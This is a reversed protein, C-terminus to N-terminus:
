NGVTELAALHSELVDSYEYVQFYTTRNLLKTSINTEIQYLQVSDMFWLYHVVYTICGHGPIM